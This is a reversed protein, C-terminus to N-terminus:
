RSDKQLHKALIDCIFEDVIQGRRAAESRVFREEADNLEIDITSTKDNM